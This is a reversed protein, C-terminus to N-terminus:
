MVFNGNIEEPTNAKAEEETEGYHKVRYEWKNMVGANLEQLDEQRTLAADKRDSEDYTIIIEDNFAVNEYEKLMIAFIYAAHKYKSELESEYKNITSYTIEKGGKAETATKMQLQANSLTGFGFRCVNELARLNENYAKVQQETRLSPSHTYIKEESTGNGNLQVVVKSLEGPMKVARVEGDTGQHSKFLDEDAFVMTRGAVQEWNIENYQRDCDKIINEHGGYLATPNQSFDIDNPFPNRFEVIFPKEVNKWTYSPTLNETQTCSKLGVKNLTGNENRYLEMTVSHTKNEFKHVECLLYRKKGDVIEKLIVAGTLTGDFDRTTPIYYGQKIIEFQTKGNSYIPRLLSGGCTAMNGVTEDSREHLKTMVELLKENKSDIKIEENIPITLVGKIASIVGSPPNEKNWDAKGQAIALWLNIKEQLEPSINKLYDSMGEVSTVGFRSFINM